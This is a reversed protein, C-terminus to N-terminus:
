ENDEWNKCKLSAKVFNISAPDYNICLQQQYLNSRFGKCVLSWPCYVVPSISFTIPFGKPTKNKDKIEVNKTPIDGQSETENNKRKM